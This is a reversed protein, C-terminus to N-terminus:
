TSLKNQSQTRLIKISFNPDGPFLKFVGEGTTSLGSLNQQMSYTLWNMKWLGSGSCWRDHGSWSGEMGWMSLQILGILNLQLTNYIIHYIYVVFGM